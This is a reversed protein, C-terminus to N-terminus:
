MIPSRFHSMFQKESKNINEYRVDVGRFQYWYYLSYLASACICVASAILGYTINTDIHLMVAGFYIVLFVIITIIYDVIYRRYSKQKKKFCYTSFGSVGTIVSLTVGCLLYWTFLKLFFESRILVGIVLLLTDIVLAATFKVVNQLILYEKREKKTRPILYYCKSYEVAQISQVVSVPVYIFVLMFLNAMKDLEESSFNCLSFIYLGILLITVFFFFAYSKFGYKAKCWMLHLMMRKNM